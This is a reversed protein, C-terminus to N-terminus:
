SSLSVTQAIREERELILLKREERSKKEMPWCVHKEEKRLVFKQKVKSQKIDVVGM